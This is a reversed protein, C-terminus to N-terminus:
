LHMAQFPFQPCVKQLLPMVYVIIGISWMDSKKYEWGCCARKSIIEPAMYIVTGATSKYITNEDIERADGWDIIKIIGSDGEYM